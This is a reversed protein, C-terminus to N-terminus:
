RRGGPGRQGGRAGTVPVSHWPDMGPPRKTNRQVEGAPTEKGLGLDIEAKFSRYVPLWLPALMLLVAIKGYFEFDLLSYVFDDALLDM